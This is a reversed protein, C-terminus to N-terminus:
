GVPLVRATFLLNPTSTVRILFLPLALQSRKETSLAGLDTKQGGLPLVAGGGGGWVGRGLFPGDPGGLVGFALTEPGLPVHCGLVPGM